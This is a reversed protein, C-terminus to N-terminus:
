IHTRGGLPRSGHCCHDNLYAMLGDIALYKASYIRSRGNRQLTALGARKLQALHFSAMPLPLKLVNAIESSHLGASGTQVLLEFINLRTEQGLAALAAIVDSKKMRAAYSGRSVM